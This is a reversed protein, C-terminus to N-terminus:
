NFTLTIIVLANAITIRVIIVVARGNFSIPKQKISAFLLDDTTVNVTFGADSLGLLAADTKPTIVIAGEKTLSPIQHQLKEWFNAPPYQKFFLM